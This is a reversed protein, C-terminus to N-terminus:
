PKCNGCPSYGQAIAEERTGYFKQRNEPNMQTVSACTPYHFKKRYTNLIYTPSSSTHEKLSDSTHEKLSDSTLIHFGLFSIGAIIFIIILLGIVVKKKEM